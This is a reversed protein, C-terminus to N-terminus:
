SYQFLNDKTKAFEYLFHHSTAVMLSLLCYIGIVIMSGTIVKYGHHGHTRYSPLPCNEAKICGLFPPRTWVGFALSQLKQAYGPWLVIIVNMTDPVKTYAKLPQIKCSDVHKQEKQGLQLRVFYDTRDIDRHTSWSLVCVLIKLGLLMHWALIGGGFRSGGFCLLKLNFYVNMRM